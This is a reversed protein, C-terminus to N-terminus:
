EKNKRIKNVIQFICSEQIKHHDKKYSLRTMVMPNLLCHSMSSICELGWKGRTSMLSEFQLYLM